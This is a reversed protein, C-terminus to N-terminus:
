YPCEVQISRFTAIMRSPAAKWNIPGKAWESTGRPNSADWIGLQIRSPHSPYHLGGHKYTDDKQLIRIPVGDVSWIIRDENWDITYKHTDAITSKKPYNEIEGFVGWLPHKDQPGYAFINSQWHTPDGGLLEIDIEDREHTAILIAATVVGPQIPGDFDINVKGYRIVFTSNITSGEAIKSNVGNKTQIAGSPKDLFLELGDGTVEYSTRKSVAVFPTNLSQSVDSPSFTTQFPTCTSTSGLGGAAPLQLGFGVDVYFTLLILYFFYLVNM